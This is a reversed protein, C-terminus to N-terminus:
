NEPTDITPKTYKSLIELEYNIISYLIKRWTDENFDGDPLDNGRIWDEGARSKRASVQCGLYGEDDPRDSAIIHYKFQNTYINMEKLHQSKDKFIRVTQVFDDVKGPFILEELWKDLLEMKSVGSM